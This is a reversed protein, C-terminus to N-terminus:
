SYPDGNFVGFLAGSDDRLIARRGLVPHNHAPVVVTGGNAVTATVIADPEDLWLYSLWRNGTLNSNLVLGAQVAGTGDVFTFYSPASTAVTTWSMTTEYFSKAADLDHTQLELWNRM